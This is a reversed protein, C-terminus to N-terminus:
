RLFAAPNIKFREGLALAQTKSIPRQGSLIDSVRPQPMIGALDSQTLGNSEMLAQLIERGSLELEWERYRRGEYDHVLTSLM